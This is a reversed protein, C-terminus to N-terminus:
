LQISLKAERKVDDPLNAPIDFSAKILQPGTVQVRSATIVHATDLWLWVDMKLDKSFHSNYGEIEFDVTTGANIQLPLLGVIGPRLPTLMGVTLSIFVLLVGLGKWWNEKIM